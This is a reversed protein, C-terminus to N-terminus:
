KNKRQQLAPLIIMLLIAALILLSIPRKVFMSFDGRYLINMRCFQEDAMGGLMVGMVFALPPYGNKKLLISLAAMFIMLSIYIASNKVSFVGAICTAMLVPTLIKTSINLVNSMGFSFGMGM